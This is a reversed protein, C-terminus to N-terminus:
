SVLRKLEFLVMLFQFIINFHALHTSTDFDRNQFTDFYFFYYADLCGTQNYHDDLKRTQFQKMPQARRGDM